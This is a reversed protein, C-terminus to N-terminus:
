QTGFSGGYGPIYADGGIADFDGTITVNIEEQQQGDYSVGTAQLTFSGGVNDSSSSSINVSGGTTWVIQTTQENEGVFAFGWFGSDGEDYNDADIVTYSGSGPRNSDDTVLWAGQGTTSQDEPDSNTMVLVFGQNGTEPDTAGGFVAEGKITRDIDGSIELTFSGTSSGADSCGQVLFLGLLLIFLGRAKNVWTIM